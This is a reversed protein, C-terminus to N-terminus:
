PSHKRLRRNGHLKAEVEDYLIRSVVAQPGSACAPDTLVRWLTAASLRGGRPARAGMRELEEAIRRVPMGEAAMLFAQRVHEEAMPRKRNSM